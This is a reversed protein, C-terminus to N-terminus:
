EPQTQQAEIHEAHATGAMPPLVSEAAAAITAVQASTFIVPRAAIAHPLNRATHLEVTDRDTGYRLGGRPLRPGHVAVMAEV